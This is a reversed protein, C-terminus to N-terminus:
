LKKELVLGWLVAPYALFVSLKLVSLSIVDIQM